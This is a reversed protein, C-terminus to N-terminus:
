KLFQYGKNLLKELEMSRGVLIKAVVLDKEDMWREKDM